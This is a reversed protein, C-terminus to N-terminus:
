NGTRVANVNRTAAKCLCADLITTISITSPESCLALCVFKSQPCIVCKKCTLRYSRLVRFNRWCMVDFLLSINELYVSGIDINAGLVLGWEYYRQAFGRLEFQVGNSQVLISPPFTHCPITYNPCLSWHPAKTFAVIFM